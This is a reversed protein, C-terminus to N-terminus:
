KLGRALAYLAYASHMYQMIRAKHRLQVPLVIRDTIRHRMVEDREQAVGVVMAWIDEGM